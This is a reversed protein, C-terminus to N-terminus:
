ADRRDEGAQLLRQLLLPHVRGRFRIRGDIEVVPVCTTFRAQLEPDQDIDVEEPRLGNAQLLQIAEDCLHCGLRSYVVVRRPMM